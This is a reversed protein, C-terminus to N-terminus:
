PYHLTAVTNDYSLLNPLQKFSVLSIHIEPLVLQRWQDRRHRGPRQYFFKRCKDGIMEGINCKIKYTVGLVRFHCIQESTVGKKKRDQGTCLNNKKSLDSRKIKENAHIATRVVQARSYQMRAFFAQMYKSNCFAAHQVM